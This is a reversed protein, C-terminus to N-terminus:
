THQHPHEQILNINLHTSPLASQRAEQPGSYSLLSLSVGKGEGKREGERWGQSDELQFMLKERMESEFQFM